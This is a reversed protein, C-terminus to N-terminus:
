KVNAKVFSDMEARISTLKEWARQSHEIAEDSPNESSRNSGIALFQQNVAAFAREYEAKAQEHRDCLDLWQTQVEPNSNAM